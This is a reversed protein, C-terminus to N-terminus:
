QVVNRGRMSELGHFQPRDPARTTTRAHGAFSM